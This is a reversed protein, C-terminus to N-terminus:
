REVLADARVTVANIRETTEGLAQRTDMNEEIFLPEGVVLSLRTFPFPVMFGDWSRLRYNWTSSYAIPLVPLGTKRAAYIVGPAAQQAPGRPGDPTIGITGGATAAEVINRLAAAGGRSSSGEITQAGFRETVRAVLAGDRHRSVLVYMTRRPPIFVPMMMLRGHWFAFIGQHEGSFYAEALPHAEYVIRATRRVLRIYWAVLAALVSFVVPHRLRKYVPKM